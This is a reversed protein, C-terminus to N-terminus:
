ETGHSPDVELPHHHHRTLKPFIFELGIKFILLAIGLSLYAEIDVAWILYVVISVLVAVSIFMDNLTEAGSAMLVESRYKKGRRKLYVALVLKALVSAVLVAVTALSYEVKSEESLKEIAEIVIHVGALLIVVAIVLTTAREVKARKEAFRKKRALKEGAVVVFGSVADILSHAADSTIAISGSILGVALNFAALLFNTVIFWVGSKVIVQSRTQEM